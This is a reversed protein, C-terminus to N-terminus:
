AVRLLVSEVEACCVLRLHFLLRILDTETVIGVLRGEEIVPVAGIKRDAMLRVAATLPEGPGVTLAPVSMVESVSRGRLAADIDVVRGSEADAVVSFLLSRLDRDTLIGALHGREDIVPLHHLTHRQMRLAADLCSHTPQITTVVPKMIDRVQLADGDEVAHGRFM